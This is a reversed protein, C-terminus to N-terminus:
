PAAVGNSSPEREVPAQRQSQDRKYYENLREMMVEHVATLQAVEAMLEANVKQYKALLLDNMRERSIQLQTDTM